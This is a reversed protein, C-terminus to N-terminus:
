RRLAIIEPVAPTIMLTHPEAERAAFGESIARAREDSLYGLDALRPLGVEVSAKPWQWVFNSAPIVDIIPRLSRM